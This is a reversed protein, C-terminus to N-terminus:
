ALLRLFETDRLVADQVASFGLPKIQPDNFALCCKTMRVFTQFQNPGIKATLKILYTNLDKFSAKDRKSWSKKVNAESAAASKSLRVGFEM